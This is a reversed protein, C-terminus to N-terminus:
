EPMVETLLQDVWKLAEPGKIEAHLKMYYKGGEGLHEFEQNCNCRNGECCYSLYFERFDDYIGQVDAVVKNAQPSYELWSPLWDFKPSSFKVYSYVGDEKKEEGTQLVEFKHMRVADALLREILPDRMVRVLMSSYKDGLFILTHLNSLYNFRM